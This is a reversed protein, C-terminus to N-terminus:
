LQGDHVATSARKDKQELRRTDDFLRSRLFEYADLFGYFYLFTVFPHTEIRKLPIFQAKGDVKGVRYKGISNLTGSDIQACLGIDFFHAARTGETKHLFDFVHTRLPQGQTATQIVRNHHIFIADNIGVAQTKFILENFM